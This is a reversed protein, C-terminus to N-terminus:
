EIDIIGDMEWNVVVLDAVSAVEDDYIIAAGPAVRNALFSKFWTFFRVLDVWELRLITAIQAVSM